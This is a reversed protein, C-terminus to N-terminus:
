NLRQKTFTWFFLLIRHKIIRTASCTVAASTFHPLVEGLFNTCKLQLATLLGLSPPQATSKNLTSPQPQQWVTFPATTAANHQLQGLPAAFTCTSTSSQKRCTLKSSSSHFSHSKHHISKIKRPGREAQVALINVSNSNCKYILNLKKSAAVM